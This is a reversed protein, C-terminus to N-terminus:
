PRPQDSTNAKRKIAGGIGCPAGKGHSAEWFNWSGAHYGADFIKTCFLFLIVKQRYQFTPGDSFFHITDLDPHTVHM